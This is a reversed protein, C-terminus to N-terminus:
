LFSMTVSCFPVQHGVVKPAGLRLPTRCRFPFLRTLAM